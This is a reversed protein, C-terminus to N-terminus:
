GGALYYDNPDQSETGPHCDGAEREDRQEGDSWCRGAHELNEGAGLRGWTLHLHM